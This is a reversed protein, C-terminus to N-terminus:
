LLKRIELIRDRLAAKTLKPNPIAEWIGQVVARLTKTDVERVADSAAMAVADVAVSALVASGRVVDAATATSLYFIVGRRGISRIWSRSARSRCARM